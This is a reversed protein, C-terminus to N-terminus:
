ESGGGNGRDLYRIGNRFCPDVGNTTTTCTGGDPVREFLRHCRECKRVPM